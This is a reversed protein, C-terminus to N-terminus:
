AESAVRAPRFLRRWFMALVNGPRVNTPEGPAAHGKREPEGRGRDALAAPPGATTADAIPGISPSTRRGVRGAYAGPIMVPSGSHAAGQLIMATDAARSAAREANNVARGMRRVGAPNRQTRDDRSSYARRRAADDHWSPRGRCDPVSGLRRRSRGGLRTEDHRDAQVNQSGLGGSPPCQKTRRFAPRGYSM